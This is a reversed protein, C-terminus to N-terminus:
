RKATTSVDRAGGARGGDDLIALTDPPRDRSHVVCIARDCGLLAFHDVTWAGFSVVESVSVGIRTAPAADARKAVGSFRDYPKSYTYRNLFFKVCGSGHM